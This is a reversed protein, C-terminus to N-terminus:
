DDVRREEISDVDVGDDITVEAPLGDTEMEVDNPEKM